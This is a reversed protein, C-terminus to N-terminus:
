STLQNLSQLEAVQAQIDSKMKDATGDAEAYDKFFPGHTGVFFTLHKRTTMGGKGDPAPQHSVSIDHVNFDNPGM